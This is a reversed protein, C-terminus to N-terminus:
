NDKGFIIMYWGSDQNIKKKNAEKKRRAERREARRMLSEGINQMIVLLAAAGSIIFPGFCLLSLICELGAM